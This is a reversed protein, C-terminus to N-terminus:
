KKKKTPKRKAGEGKPKKKPVAKKPESPPAAEEPTAPTAAQPVASPRKPESRIIAEFRDTVKEWTFLEAVRRKGSESCRAWLAEDSLLRDTAEVFGKMYDPSGPAGPVVFGADGVTEPLASVASAVVPCAAAQAEIATICFTEFIINPYIWVGSRMLERALEFQRVNGHLICSPLKTLEKKLREYEQVQPGRFPQDTDYVSMGSFVHLELDRHKQLLARYIAPVLALGRYPAATFILRKRNRPESGAFLPPHVGNYIVETQELPYGSEACLTEKHWTSVTILREIAKWVRADGLGFNVYQDFGDGTWFFFRKGRAGLIAPRWDKVCVFLDFTGAQHVAAAPLYRPSSPPPAAHSTFVTVDYGRQQLIEAVRILATETGGLPREELTRAHVPLCSAAYFAIKM